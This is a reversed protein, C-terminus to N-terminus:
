ENIIIIKEGEKVKFLYERIFREKVGKPNRKLENYLSELKERKKLEAKINMSLKDKLNRLKILDFVTPKSIFLNVFTNLLLLLLFLKLIRRLSSDTSSRREGSFQEM